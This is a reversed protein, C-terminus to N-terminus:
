AGFKIGQSIEDMYKLDESSLSAESAAIAEELHSLKSVSIIPIIPMKWVKEM